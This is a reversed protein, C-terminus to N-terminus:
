RPLGSVNIGDYSPVSAFSKTPSRPISGRNCAGSAHTIGKYWLGYSIKYNVPIIGGRRSTIGKYWM